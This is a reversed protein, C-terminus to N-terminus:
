IYSINDVWEVIKGFIEDRNLENFHEHYNEPYFLETVLDPDIKGTLNRIADTDAIRDDGAMIVLVPYKWGSIHDPIWRQAKLLESAIGTTVKSVVFGDKEDKSQCELIEKDRTVVLKFDETPVVMRPFLTSLVGVLKLMIGSTKVRNVYYPSSLIFGRILPDDKMFGRILPDDELYRLGFHTAILGGMSHGIIFVPLGPYQDKVWQVMLRLDELFLEFRPVIVKDPHDPGQHDHGHQDQAVTVIGHDRFFLAPLMYNGGHDMLGHVTLFVMRPSGPEWIHINRKRGDSCALKEIRDESFRM